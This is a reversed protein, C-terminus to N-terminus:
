SLSTRSSNSISKGNKIEKYHQLANYLSFANGTIMNLAMLQKDDKCEDSLQQAVNYLILIYGDNKLLDNFETKLDM